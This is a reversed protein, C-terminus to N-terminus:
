PLYFWEDPAKLFAIKGQKQTFLITPETKSIYVNQYPSFSANVLSLKGLSISSPCFELVASWCSGLFCASLLVCIGDGKKM